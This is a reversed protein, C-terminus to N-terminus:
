ADVKHTICPIIEGGLIVGVTDGICLGLSEIFGPNNLTARSVLKDGIYVPELIAVPTVKGSKGVGWEVSLIQTEIAEAREKQAYAGRPFKSTHGLQEFLSNDNVRFVVGDCPYINHLEDEFVTNFGQSALEKIDQIYTSHKYPYVGYAFFSIARTKFEVLEKLALAGASYNRSNPVEKVAAVEGTVQHLDLRAVKLPALDPRSLLKDTIDTGEIGDGRTLAQVLVGNLYTLGIAAGDLKPTCVKDKVEPLPAVGEDVYHKQLSYMPYTHKCINEHQKAGVRAYGSADALRDFVEDSIIPSGAYYAISAEDLYQTLISV